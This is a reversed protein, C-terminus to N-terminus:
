HSFSFSITIEYQKIDEAWFERGSGDIANFRGANPWCTIVEGSNLVVLYEEKVYDKIPTKKNKKM